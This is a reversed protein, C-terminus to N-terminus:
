KIKNIENMPVITVKHYGDWCMPEFWIYYIFVNDDILNWKVLKCDGDKNIEQQFFKKIKTDM